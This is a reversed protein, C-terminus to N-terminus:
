IRAIRPIEFKLLPGLTQMMVNDAGHVIRDNPVAGIATSDITTLLIYVVCAYIFTCGSRLYLIITMQKIDEKYFLIKVYM